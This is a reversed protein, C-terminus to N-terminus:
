SEKLINEFNDFNSTASSSQKKDFSSEEDFNFSFLSNELFNLQYRKEIAM